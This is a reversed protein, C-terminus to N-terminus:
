KSKLYQVALEILTNVTADNLDRKMGEAWEKMQFKVWARKDEGPIGKTDAKNVMQLVVSYLEPDDSRSAVLNVIFAAIFKGVLGLLTPLVYSLIANM